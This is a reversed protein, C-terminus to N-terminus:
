NINDYTFDAVVTTSWWASEGGRGQGENTIRVNRFWVDSPTRKGEYANLAVQAADYAVKLGGGLPTFVEVMVAGSKGFRKRGQVGALTNQGGDAHILTWRAWTAGTGPKTFSALNPWEVPWPEPLAEVALRFKDAMEDAAEYHNAVTV